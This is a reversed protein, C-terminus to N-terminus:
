QMGEMSTSEENRESNKFWEIWAKAKGRRQWAEVCTYGTYIPCDSCSIGACDGNNALIKECVQLDTLATELQTAM